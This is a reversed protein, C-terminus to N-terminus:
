LTSLVIYKFPKLICYLQVTVCHVDSTYNMESKYIFKIIKYQITNQRSIAIGRKLCRHSLQEENLVPSINYKIIQDNTKKIIIGYDNNM